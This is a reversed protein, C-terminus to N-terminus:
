RVPIRYLNRQTAERSFAYVDRSLGPAVDFFDIVRAGPSQSIEAASQFGQPPLGPFVQGAAVPLVFTKGSSGGFFPTDTTLIFMLKGDQSWKVNADDLRDEAHPAIIRVRPKGRLSLAMVASPVDGEPARVVLWQFDPSIGQIGAIPKESVKQLGTGDLKARYPFALDGEYKRFFVEGPMGFRPNDGEINPIPAPATQRDLPVVWLRRHGTRDLEAAILRRGDRSIDYAMANGGAISVGPLLPESTGTALDAIWLESSDTPLAGKLIRYGLKRGDPTFQPDYAFGELSVQRDGEAGHIWVARQKLAVATVFSRGDPAMAIGDEETPGSTIQELRGDPFRQRWTHFSGGASSSLYMWKGDPSWAAFTCAAGPPGIERPLATGDLAILHCPQFVGRDMQVALAWKGDPSVNSRHVMSRVNAPAYIDRAESRNERAAVLAMHIDNNKIESFLIQNKGFWTLGSANELWSRSQGNFVPVTWTDWNNGSTVTYAIRSGDPSFVPSMKLNSDHTLQVAEGDPLMKVYIQGATAFTREGRVFTLMRGDPSLAPQGASDPFKTLQVWQDPSAPRGPSLLWLATGIAFVVAAATGATLPWSQRNRRAEDLARRVEGIDQIRRAADRELCRALLERLRAPTKPPLATWDPERELIATLTDQLTEGRFARKGTLLEYLLCGFAWIDTRQDVDSARVQEPSMYPPTGTIQGAATELMTATVEPSVQEAEQANSVAKALGFDLVKVRGQATVKVNAPKLDRHVIGKAHAAELAEAVQGAYDLAQEVPVPGSLTEGEVLELVLCTADDSEELGYIAAINSHNLSALTRAERRFRALREPDRAFTGPLTKLAVDRGLKNDHARYVEGMGGAGLLSLVQYSGFRRGLLVTATPEPQSMELFSGAQEDRRLLSEVERRLEADNGCAGELFEARAEPDRTRAAFYLTEIQQWHGPNM